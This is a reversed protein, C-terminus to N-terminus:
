FLAFPLLSSGSRILYFLVTSGSCRKELLNQNFYQLFYGRKEGPIVLTSKFHVWIFLCNGKLSNWLELWM